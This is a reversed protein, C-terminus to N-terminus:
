PAPKIATYIRVIQNALQLQMEQRLRSEQSESATENNADYDYTREVVVTKENVVINDQRDKVLFRVTSNLEYEDISASASLTATRRTHSEELIELLYNAQTSPQIVVGNAELYRRLPKEVLSRAKTPTTIALQKLPEAIDVAGRLQFGCATLLVTCCLLLTAAVSSTRMRSIM